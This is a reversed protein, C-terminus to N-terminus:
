FQILKKTSEQIEVIASLGPHTDNYFNLFRTSKTTSFEFEPYWLYGEIKLLKKKNM